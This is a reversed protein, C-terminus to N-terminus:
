SAKKQLNINESFIKKLMTRKSKSLVPKSINPNLLNVPKSVKVEANTVVPKSVSNAPNQATELKLELMAMKEALKEFVNSINQVALNGIDVSNNGANQFNAIDDLKNNIVLSVPKSDEASVAGTERALIIVFLIAVLDQWLFDLLTVESGILVHILGLFISTLVTISGFTRPNMQTRWHLPILEGYVSEANRPMQKALTSNKFQTKGL